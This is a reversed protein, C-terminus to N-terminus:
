LVAAINLNPELFSFFFAFWNLPECLSESFLFFFSVSFLFLLGFHFVDINISTLARQLCESADFWPKQRRGQLQVMGRLSEAKGCHSFAARLVVDLLTEGLHVFVHPSVVDRSCRIAYMVELLVVNYMGYFRCVDRLCVPECSGPFATM